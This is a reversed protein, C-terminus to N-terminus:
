ILTQKALRMAAGSRKDKGASLLLARNRGDPHACSALSSCFWLLNTNPYRMTISSFRYQQIDGLICTLNISSENIGKTYIRLWGAMGSIRWTYVMFSCFSVWGSLRREGLWATM